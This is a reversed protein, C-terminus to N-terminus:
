NSIQLTHYKVVNIRKEGGVSTRTKSLYQSYFLHNTFMKQRYIHPILVNHINM